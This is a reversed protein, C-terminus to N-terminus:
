RVISTTGERLKEGNKLYATMGHPVTVTLQRENYKVCVDGQPTRIKGEAHPIDAMLVPDILISKYACSGETRRIGLIYEVLYRSVAGFMPHCNSRAGSWNEPFTTAGRQMQSYFSVGGKSTLLEYALREEGKEFLLRIVIDTGFIGTDLEGTKRYHEVMNTFTRSDGLNLDVAFANAGQENNAFNGTAEDYYERTM